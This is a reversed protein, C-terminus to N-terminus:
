NLVNYQSDYSYCDTQICFFEAIPCKMRGIQGPQNGSYNFCVPNAAQRLKIRIRNM